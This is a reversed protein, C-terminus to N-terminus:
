LQNYYKIFIEKPTKSSFLALLEHLNAKALISNIGGNTEKSAKIKHFVYQSFVMFFMVFSVAIFRITSGKSFFHVTGKCHAPATALTIRSLSKGSTMGELHIIEANSNVWCEYGLNNLKTSLDYDEPAFFYYEDFWGVSEFISRKILFACGSINYSKFLGDKMVWENDTFRSKIRLFYLIYDIFDMPPNGSVVVKQDYNLINPSVIAVNDPLKDFSEVLMDICQPKLITDDNLVFCYKGTAQRLALNNNEAFGRIEDSVIFKVWPFDNRAKDLNEKTFLYAVVFVEYSVSTCEKISNLCPYLNELKNMCVIIVSVDVM